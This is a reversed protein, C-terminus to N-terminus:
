SLSARNALSPSILVTPCESLAVTQTSAAVNRDVALHSLYMRIEEAGM